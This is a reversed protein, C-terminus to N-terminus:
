SEKDGKRKEPVEEATAEHEILFWLTRGKNIAWVSVVREGPNLETKLFRGTDLSRPVGLVRYRYEKM